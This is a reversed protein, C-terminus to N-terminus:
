RAELVKFDDLGKSLPCISSYVSDNALRVFHLSNIKNRIKKLLMARWHNEQKTMEPIRHFFYRDLSQTLPFALLDLNELNKM